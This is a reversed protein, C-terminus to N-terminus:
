ILGEVNERFKQPYAVLYKRARDREIRDQYERVSGLYYHPKRSRLYDKYALDLVTKEIDSYRIKKERIIGEKFYKSGRKIFRFKQGNISIVKTTRYSDTIVYDIFFYEHTMLNLKLATELAFYWNKVGKEKSAMAVLEYMSCDQGSHEREKINRVYFIGRLIRIIYGEEQLYYLSRKENRDIERALTMIEKTSAIKKGEVILKKWIL